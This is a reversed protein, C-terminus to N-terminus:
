GEVPLLRSRLVDKVEHRTTLSPMECDARRALEAWEADTMAAVYALLAADSCGFASIRMRDLYSVLAIVKRARGLEEHVQPARRPLPLTTAM